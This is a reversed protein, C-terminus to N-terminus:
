ENGTVMAGIFINSNDVFVHRESTPAVTPTPARTSSSRNDSLNLKDWSLKHAIHNQLALVLAALTTEDDAEALFCPPIDANSKDSIVRISCNNGITKTISNLHKFEKGIIIGFANKPFSIFESSRRFSGALRFWEARLKEISDFSEERDGKLGEEPQNTTIDEIVRKTNRDYELYKTELFNRSYQPFLEVLKEVWQNEDM